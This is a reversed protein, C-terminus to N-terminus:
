TNPSGARIIWQRLEQEAVGNATSQQEPTLLKFGARFIAPIGTCICMSSQGLWAVRNIKDNTLFHECSIPWDRFVLNIAPRFQDSRLFAAYMELADDRSIGPPASRAYFGNRYCEWKDWPHWIRKM